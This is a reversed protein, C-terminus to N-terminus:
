KERENHHVAYSKLLVFEDIQTRGFFFFYDASM